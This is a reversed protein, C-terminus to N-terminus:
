YIIAHKTTTKAYFASTPNHFSDDGGAAGHTIFPEHTTIFILGELSFAEKESAFSETAYHFVLDLGGSLSRIFPGVPGAIRNAFHPFADSLAVGDQTHGM